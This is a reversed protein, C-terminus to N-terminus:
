VPHSLHTKTDEIRRIKKVFSYGVRFCEKKFTQEVQSICFSTSSNSLVLPYISNHFDVNSTTAVVLQHPIHRFEDVKSSQNAWAAQKTVSIPIGKM